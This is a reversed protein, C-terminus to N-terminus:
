LDASLGSRVSNLLLWVCVFGASASQIWALGVAGFQGFLAVSLAAQLTAGCLWAMVQSWPFGSASLFQSAASAVGIFFVGPLLALIIAVAPEYAKGFIITVIPSALVASATCVLAMLLTIQLLAVKYQQMRAAGKARVLAPFLLLGITSPLILLADAIQAAISWYGIDAFEGFQRLVMVSMRGMVFGLLTAIHARLAFAIGDRFLGFDFRRPIDVGKALVAWAAVCAVLSAIVAAVLFGGLRPALWCALLAAGIAVVGNLIILGNFTRPRNLAVAINSLYLFLLLSPTLATVIAVFMVNQESGGIALDVALVGAAAAVGALIALWLSNAMIQALLAPTRAILYTNSSQIGLSAIQLAIAALTVIYYYHGREAPGLMRATLIAVGFSGLIALGRALLMEAYTHILSPM